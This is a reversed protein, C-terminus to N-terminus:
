VFSHRTPESWMKVDLGEFDQLILFFVAHGVADFKKLFRGTGLLQLSLHFGVYFRM